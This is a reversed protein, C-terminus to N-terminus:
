VLFQRAGDAEAVEFLGLNQGAAVIVALSADSVHSRSHPALAAGETTGLTAFVGKERIVVGIHISQTHTLSLSFSHRRASKNKM